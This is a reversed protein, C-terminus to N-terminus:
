LPVVPPVWTVPWRMNLSGVTNTSTHGLSVVARAETKQPGLLHSSVRRDESGGPSTLLGKRRLTITSSVGIRSPPNKGVSARSM